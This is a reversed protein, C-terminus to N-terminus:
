YFMQIKLFQMRVDIGGKYHEVSEIDLASGGAEVHSALVAPQIQLCTKSNNLVRSIGNNSTSGVLKNLIFLIM